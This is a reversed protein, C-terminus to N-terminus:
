PHESCSPRGASRLYDRLHTGSRIAVAVLSGAYQVLTWPQAGLAARIGIEYRRQAVTFSTVGYIGIISLFVALSAPIAALKVVAAYRQSELAIATAIPEISVFLRPELAQLERRIMPTLTQPNGSFTILVSAATMNATGISQYLMEGDREGPRVSSTDSVIGVIQAATGDALSVQRGIDNSQLSLARALSESVIVPIPRRVMRAEASSFLRGSVLRIGIMGFYSSSAAPLHASVSGTGNVDTTILIRQQGQFPPLSSVAVTRIGPLSQLQPLLRDYFALADYHSYELSRLDINAVLVADPNYPLDPKLLQDQSRLVLGMAVLLALSIALQDAILMGRLFTTTHAGGGAVSVLRASLPIRLSELAPSVGVACAAALALGATYALVHWDVAFSAGVPYETLMQTIPGPLYYALVLSLTGASVGLVLSETLLQRLVRARSAGLSLRVAMEHRRAAARALLLTTVNTCVMLLVLLLGGLVVPM